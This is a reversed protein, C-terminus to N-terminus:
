AAIFQDWAPGTEAGDIQPNAALVVVSKRDPAAISKDPDTQAVSSDGITPIDGMGAATSASFIYSTFSTCSEVMLHGVHKAQLAQM